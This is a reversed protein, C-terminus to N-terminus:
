GSVLFPEAETLDPNEVAEGKTTAADGVGQKVELETNLLCALSASM